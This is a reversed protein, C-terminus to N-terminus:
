TYEYLSVSKDESVSALRGARGGEGGPPRFAVAWVQDTHDTMTQVSARMKLDWLRVTKDSSGTAIATGDPSADVCLVFSAHGSMAGILKRSEADYMHIHKDDCATFLVRNDVPSFALSRVPMSHGELEHLLKGKSVDFVAVTGDMTSCALRRGDASWATALVFKGGGKDAGKADPAEGKPMFLAKEMKWSSTNWLKM